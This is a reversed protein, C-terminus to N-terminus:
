PAIKLNLLFCSMVGPVYLAPMNVKVIGKYPSHTHYFSANGNGNGDWGRPTLSVSLLFLLSLLIKVVFILKMAQSSSTWILFCIPCLNKLWAYVTFQVKKREGNKVRKGSEKMKGRPSIFSSQITFIHLSTFLHGEPLRLGPKQEEMVVQETLWTLCPM